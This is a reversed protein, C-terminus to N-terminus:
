ITPYITIPQTSMILSIFELDPAVFFEFVSQEADFARDFAVYESFRLSSTVMWCLEKTVDAQPGVSTAVILTAVLTLGLKGALRGARPFCDVLM